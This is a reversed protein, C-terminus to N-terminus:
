DVRGAVYKMVEIAPTELKELIVKLAFYTGGFSLPAAILSGILPLFTRATEEAATKAVLPMISSLVIQVITKITASAQKIGLAGRVISQMQANDVSYLRAYRQLSESDLGLQRFYIDAEEVIISLDVAVSLGPIPFIAVVCSLAACKWIRSRLEARSM